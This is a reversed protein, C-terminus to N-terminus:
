LVLGVGFHGLLDHGLDAVFDLGAPLDAADGDDVAGADQLDALRRHHDGDGRRVAGFGEGGALVGDIAELLDHRDPFLLDPAVARLPDAPLVLRGARGRAAMAVSRVRGGSTNWARTAAGGSTTKSAKKRSGCRQSHRSPDM